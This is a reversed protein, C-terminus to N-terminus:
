SSVRELFVAEEPQSLKDVGLAGFEYGSRGRALVPSALPPFDELGGGRVCM